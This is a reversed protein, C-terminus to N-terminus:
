SVLPSEEFGLIRLGERVEPCSMFLRWLLGTRYNEIMVIIPGQDIALNDTAVWDTTENFADAFGYKGWIKSGLDYYFHRLARTSEEPTYPMSSLAATPTIVGRDQDPAHPYYGRDGDSATIGWCDPGYGAYHHPNRVCHEYNVCREYNILAHRRNQEWYDAYRDKLQRPDLGLFSYHTFFLPGGYDPGLPLSIGYYEKGNKFQRGKAWGEHYVSAGIPYTPSSAALVYTILCENWGDIRQPSEQEPRPGRHWLLVDGGKTHWNWNVKRWLDDIAVCLAKEKADGMCFYQRACLLGQVLFSTEVLDGGANGVWFAVEKGTPGDLYHPFVGNYQDAAALYGLLDLLRDRAEARSIWGREAAVIMAMVGFGTGGVALLDTSGDEHVSSRDRPMGSKPHAFEWFYGFSQRQVLELLADDTLKAVENRGTVETM